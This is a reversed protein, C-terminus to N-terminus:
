ELYICRNDLISIVYKFAKVVNAVNDTALLTTKNQLDFEILVTDILEAIAEYTHRGLMRRCALAKANRELTTPNLWHMTFGM